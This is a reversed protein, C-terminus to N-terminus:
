PWHWHWPLKPGGKGWRGGSAFRWIRQGQRNYGSGFRLIPNNNVYPRGLVAMQAGFTVQGVTRSWKCEFCNNYLGGFPDWGPIFGDWFAALPQEVVRNFTAEVTVEEKLGIDL